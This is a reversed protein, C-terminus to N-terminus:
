SMFPRTGQGLILGQGEANPTRLRLWQVVM